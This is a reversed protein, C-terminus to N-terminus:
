DDRDDPRSLTTTISSISLDLDESAHENFYASFIRFFHSISDSPGTTSLGCGERAMCYQLYYRLCTAATVASVNGIVSPDLSLYSPASDPAFVGNGPSRPFFSIGITREPDDPDVMSGALIIPAFGSAEEVKTAAEKLADELAARIRQTTPSRHDPV